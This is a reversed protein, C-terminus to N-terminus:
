LSAESALAAAPSATGRTAGLAVRVAAISGWPLCEAVRGNEIETEFTAGQPDIALLRGTRWVPEPEAKSLYHVQPPDGRQSALLRGLYQLM